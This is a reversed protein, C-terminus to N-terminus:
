EWWWRRRLAVGPATRGDLLVGGDRVGFDIGLLDMSLRAGAVGGDKLRRDDVRKLDVWECEM